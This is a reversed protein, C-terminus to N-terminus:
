SSRLSLLTIERSRVPITAPVFYLPIKFLSDLGCKVFNFFGSIYDEEYVFDMSKDSRTCCVTCNIGSIDKFRRKCSTFNLYDTCSSKVLVALVDFLICGKFSSELRYCYALRSIFLCDFDKFSKTIFIFSVM